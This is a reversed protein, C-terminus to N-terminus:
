EHKRGGRGLGVKQILASPDEDAFAQWGILCEFGKVERSVCELLTDDGIQEEAVAQGRGDLDFISRAGQHIRGLRAEGLRESIEDSNLPQLAIGKEGKQIRPFVIASLGAGPISSVEMLHCFQCPSVTHDGQSGRFAEDQEGVEDMSWRHHYPRKSFGQNLLPFMKLTEDSLTLITPMGQIMPPDVDMRVFVRDNSIYDSGTKQLFHILTSTKGANKHGAVLVGKGQVSFAAAHLFFGECRRAYHTAYERIVRMLTTRADLSRSSHALIEVKKRDTSTSYFVRFQPDLFIELAPRTQWVLFREIRTDLIYGPCEEQSAPNQQLLADYKGDDVHFSVECHYRDADVTEFQPCLFERLWVMDMSDPVNVKVTFGLYGLVTEEGHRNM